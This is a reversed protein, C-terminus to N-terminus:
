FRPNYTEENDHKKKEYIQFCTFIIMFDNCYQINM